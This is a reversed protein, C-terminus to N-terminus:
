NGHCGFTETSKFHSFRRSPGAKMKLRIKKLSGPLLSVCLIESLNSKPGSQAIQKPTVQGQAVFIKGIFNYHLFHSCSLGKMKSQIKMLMCIILVPM